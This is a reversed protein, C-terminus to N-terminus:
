KILLSGSVYVEELSEGEYEVSFKLVTGAKIVVEEELQTLGPSIQFSDRRSHPGNESIVHLTVPMSTEPIKVAMNKLFGSVPILLKGFIERSSIDDAEKSIFMQTQTMNKSFEGRRKDALQKKAESDTRVVVNRGEKSGPM